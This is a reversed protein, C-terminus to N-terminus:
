GAAAKGRRAAGEERRETHPRAYTRGGGAGAGAKGAEARAASRAGGEGCGAPGAPGRPACRGALHRTLRQRWLVSARPLLCAALPWPNSVVPLGQASVLRANAAALEAKVDDSHSVAQALRAQVAEREGRATTYREWAARGESQAGLAVGGEVRSDLAAACSSARVEPPLSEALTRLQQFNLDIGAQTQTNQARARSLEAEARDAAAREARLEAQLGSMLPELESGVNAGARSPPLVQGPNPHRCSPALPRPSPLPRHHHNELSGFPKAESYKTGRGVFAKRTAGLEWAM